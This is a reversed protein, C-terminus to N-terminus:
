TFCYLLNWCPPLTELCIHHKKENVIGIPNKKRVINHLIGRFSVTMKRPNTMTIARIVYNFQMGNCM